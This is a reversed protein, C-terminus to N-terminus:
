IFLKKRIEDMHLPSTYTFCILLIEDFFCNVRKKESKIIKQLGYSFLLDRDDDNVEYGGEGERERIPIYMICIIM